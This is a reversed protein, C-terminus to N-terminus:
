KNNSNDEYLFEICSFELPSQQKIDDFGLPTIKENDKIFEICSFELPCVKQKRRKYFNLKLGIAKFYANVIEASRNKCTEDLKVDVHFPDGTLLVEAMRRGHPSTSYLMMTYAVIYAGAHTLDGAEMDGFKVPTKAYLAKHVNNAKNRSNENRINTASLSTVSFKEEAYQKLRYFYQYAYQVPRRSKVYRFQGRSGKIPMLLYEVGLFPFKDYIESLRDIDMSESIPDSSLYIGIDTSLNSIFDVCEEDSLTSIYKKIYDHHKPSIMNIYELLLDISESIDLQDHIIQDIIQRGISNISMEFLQGFNQRNPVTDKNMICDIIEGKFTRPMLEDPLIRSVVGKGGYRNCMKDGQSMPIIEMVVVKMVINSFVKNSIYQKGELIAKNNYYLKKLDYSIKINPNNIYENVIYCIENAVRIQELYYKNLQAFYKSSSIKEPNNVYLDIDIVTGHQITYKDDSIMISSLRSKAQTYLASEKQERRQVYLINEFYEGIDPLSKYEETADGNEGGRLNLPIDNDNIIIEVEKILPSALKRTAATESLIIGDEMTKETGLYCTLLNTGDMRNDYDDFSSSKHIPEGKHIYDGVKHKDLNKNNLVYGYSESIHRCEQREIVDLERIGNEDPESLTIFWYHSDPKFSYKNIKALIVRDEESEVYSSSYRGFEDEYGTGLLPVEPNVLPIKQELQVAYMLKRSGSNCNNFPMMLGKGLLEEKETVKASKLSQSVEDELNLLAM